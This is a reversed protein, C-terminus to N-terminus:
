QNQVPSNEFNAYQLASSSPHFKTDIGLGM